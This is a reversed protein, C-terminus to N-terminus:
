WHLTLPLASPSRLRLQPPSSCIRHSPTSSSTCTARAQTAALRSPCSSLYSPTVARHVGPVVAAREECCCSQYSRCSVASRETRFSARANVLEDRRATTCPLGVASGCRGNRTGMEHSAPSGVVLHYAGTYDLGLLDKGEIGDPFALRPAAAVALTSAAPNVSLTAAPHLAVSFCASVPKHDSSSISPHAEYATCTLDAAVGPLSRWLVRDCWSPVRKAAYQFGPARKMSFTPQFAIDGERFGFWAKGARQAARLQDARLLAPLDGAAIIDRVAARHDPEDIGLTGGGTIALDVRYNLDGMFFTHHFQSDANILLRGPGGINRINALVERVNANRAAHHKMHAALHSGLFLLRTGLYDVGIAVAGKNQGVGLIGTAEQSVTVERVGSALEARVYVALGIQWMMLARVMVFGPGLHETVARFIPASEGNSSATKLYAALSGHHLAAAADELTSKSAAVVHKSSGSADVGRSPSTPPSKAEVAVGDPSTGTPDEESHVVEREAAEDDSELEAYTDEADPATSARSGADATADIDRTSAISKLKYKSEQVTCIIM